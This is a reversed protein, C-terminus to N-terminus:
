DLKHASIRGKGSNERSGQSFFGHQLEAAERVLCQPPDMRSKLEGPTGLNDTLERPMGFLVGKLISPRQTL